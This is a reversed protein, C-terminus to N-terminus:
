ADLHMKGPADAEQEAGNLLDEASEVVVVKVSQEKLHQEFSVGYQYGEAVLRRVLERLDGCWREEQRAIQALEALSFPANADCSPPREHVVEFAMQHNQHLGVHLLEGGPIRLAARHMLGDQAAHFEEMTEYGMESLHRLIAESLGRRQAINVAARDLEGRITGLRKELTDLAGDPIEEAACLTLLQARIGELEGRQNELEGDFSGAVKEYFLVADLAEEMRQRTKETHLRRRRLGELFAALSDRVMKGLALMEDREGAKGADLGAEVAALRTRLREWPNGAAHRYPEPFADLAESMERLMQRAEHPALRHAGLALHAASVEAAPAGDEQRVPAAESLTMHALKQESAAIFEELALSEAMTATEREHFALWAGLRAKEKERHAHANKMCEKIIAQAGFGLNAMAGAAVEAGFLLSILQPLLIPAVVVTGSM